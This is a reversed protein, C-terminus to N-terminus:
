AVGSWIPGPRVNEWLLGEKVKGEDQCDLVDSHPPPSFESGIRRSEERIKILRIATASESQTAPAPFKKATLEM